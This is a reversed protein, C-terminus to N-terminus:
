FQTGRSFKHDVEKDLINNGKKDLMQEESSQPTDFFLPWQSQMCAETDRDKSTFPKQKPRGSWGQAESPQSLLYHNSFKFICFCFIATPDPFKYHNLSYVLWIASDNFEWFPRACIGIMKVPLLFCTGVLHFSSFM